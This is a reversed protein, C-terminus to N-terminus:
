RGSRLKMTADVDLRGSDDVEVRYIDLARQRTIWGEAVDAAVREPERSEPVGYGGGGSSISVVQDGHELVLQACADASERIGCARVVWQQSAGGSGGGRAGKAVNVTGDSAYTASFGRRHARLVVRISPAGRRFGAGETDPLLRREEVVLPQRAEDVEVSDLNCLGANGLDGITLWADALPHAAGATSGLFVQNVFPVGQDGPLSAIVSDAPCQAGGCEAMGFGDAIEAMALQVANGVRSAINTTALSTSTPHKPIGVVCGERLLVSLRRFSGANKPVGADLANFVGIMASTRSCAESLNLGNLMCDPNDRLDVSILAASPDIRVRASIPVGDEPTGPFADHCSVCQAEGAPLAAIADVMRRESYDFWSAAFAELLDWGIEGAFVGLEREGISLAARMALFDGWWQDPARIRMRCMRVFDANVEGNTQVKVCPFVLAGEEYIDRASAFYTTPQSNGIDAQHAKVMLTLRHKGEGDFVPAILTHDAAHSCGHYPSNNLFVDGPKLDPHLACLVKAMIDPGSLVHIPLSDDATLLDGSATTICCSFDRAVSLVGSRGSRLLTSAMRRTVAELRANWLALKASGILVPDTM